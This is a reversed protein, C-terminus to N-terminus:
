VNNKVLVNLVFYNILYDSPNHKFYKEVFKEDSLDHGLKIDLKLIKYTKQFFNCLSSGLYGESGTIIIQKM